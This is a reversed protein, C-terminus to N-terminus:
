KGPGKRRALLREERTFLEKEIPIYTVRSKDLVLYPLGEKKIM